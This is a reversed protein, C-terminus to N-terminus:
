LEGGDPSSSDDMDSKTVWDIIEDVMFQHVGSCKPCVMPITYLMFGMGTRTEIIHVYPESPEVTQWNVPNDTGVENGLAHPAPDPVKVLPGDHLEAQEDDIETPTLRTTPMRLGENGCFPCKVTIKKAGFYRRVDKSKVLPGEYIHPSSSSTTAM